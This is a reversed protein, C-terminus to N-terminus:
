SEKNEENNEFGIADGISVNVDEVHKMINDKENGPIAASISLSMRREEQNIDLIKVDVIQNVELVDSVKEVHDKSIESIHVLGDLGAEIEVFAGFDVIKVVRGKIIDDKKYKEHVHQWPEPQTSKLSLSIRETEKDFDLVEVEVKDDIKLIESPHEVRGWSLESIHILGDIGGIDVFVGFSTIQKVRGQIIQGKELQHFVKNKIEELEQLLVVKRSLVVKNKKRNFEIIKTNFTEGIFEDLNEVYINSLQSAPIFCRIGNSISIVGGKVVEIVKTSLISETEYMKELEQWGREIDVRKKSLLVNGEGDDVKLVYVDIKDGPKLIDHPNISNDSSIEEKSIIGDSKYGINVIVENESIDIVKGSVIDGRYLQVMSKEIEDMFDQMKNTM